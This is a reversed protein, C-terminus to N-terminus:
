NLLWAIRGRTFEIKNRVFGAPPINITQALTHLGVKVFQFSFKALGM